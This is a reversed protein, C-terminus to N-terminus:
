SGITFHQDKDRNVKKQQISAKKQRIKRSNEQTIKTPQIPETEEHAQKYCDKM